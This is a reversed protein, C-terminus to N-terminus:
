VCGGVGGSGTSQFNADRTGGQAIRLLSEEFPVGLARAALLVARSPQSVHDVVLRFTAM